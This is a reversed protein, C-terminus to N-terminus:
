LAITYAAVHKILEEAQSARIGCIVPLVKPGWTMHQCIIFLYDEETFLYFMFYNTPSPSQFVQELDFCVAIHKRDPNRTLEKDANKVEEKDTMSKM